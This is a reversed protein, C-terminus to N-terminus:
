VQADEIQRAELGPREAGAHEGVEAGVDEPDLRRLAAIGHAHDGARGRGVVPALPRHREVELVRARRLDQAPQDVLDVDDHFRPQGGGQTVLADPVLLQRDVAGPQDPARDRREAGPARVRVAGRVVDREEAVRAEHRQHGAVRHRGCGVEHERHREAREDAHDADEGREGGTVARALAPEDVGADGVGGGPHDALRHRADRGTTLGSPALGGVPTGVARAVTAQDGDRGGLRARPAREAIRELPGVQDLPEAGPGSANASSSAAIKAV